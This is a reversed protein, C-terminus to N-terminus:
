FCVPSNEGPTTSINFAGCSVYQSLHLNKFKTSGVMSSTDIAVPLNQGSYNGVGLEGDNNRGWCYGSGSTTLVCTHQVDVFLQDIPEPIGSLDTAVPTDSTTGLGDGLKGDVEERWHYMKGTDTIM